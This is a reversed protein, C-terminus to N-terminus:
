SRKRLWRVGDPTDELAIGQDALQARIADARAFDRAQKAASREDVLAQIRADDDGPAGRAFWAAPDQQLLGLARGAGLLEAKRRSREGADSARRAEGAIRAIEALVQPTNLDDDLAAEVADPIPPVEASEVDALDRLTAYLRELTRLSQEVLAGSWDLPQRYHASLLAHRLAEPPHARVLDHVKEINGLSKSMKAGSLNLM